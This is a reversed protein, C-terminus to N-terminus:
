IVVIANEKERRGKHSVLKSVNLTQHDPTNSKLTGRGMSTTNNNNNNNTHKYPDMDLIINSDIADNALQSWNVM